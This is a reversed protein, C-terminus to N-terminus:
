RGGNQNKVDYHDRLYDGALNFILVILMISLGPILMLQPANYFFAKAENLMAGWEPTPPQAGLGIYSLSAIMLIIKGADLTALVMVNGLVHPIMHKRLINMSGVGNVKAILIYDKQKETLVTSRALRAYGVWKVMVIAFILNFMGPGLLGSLIIAAIYDPFAMFADVVRMLLRDIKGGAFGSVLGIPVGILLLIALVLFSMGVTTQAGALIRSFVDRGLHDTGFFHDISMPKLRDGMNVQNPDFPAIIPAIIIVILLPVMLLM